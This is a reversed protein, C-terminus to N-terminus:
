VHWAFASGGSQSRPFNESKTANLYIQDWAESEVFELSALDGQYGSWLSHKRLSVLLDHFVKSESSCDVILHSAESVAIAALSSVWFQLKDAEGRKTALPALQTHALVASRLEAIRGGDDTRIGSNKLAKAPPHYWVGAIITSVSRNVLTAARFDSGIWLGVLARDPIGGTLLLASAMRSRKLNKGSLRAHRWKKDQGIAAGTRDELQGVSVAQTTNALESVGKPPRGMRPADVLGVLGMADFADRIELIREESLGTSSLDKSSLQAELVCWARQALRLADPRKASVMSELLLHEQPLLCRQM